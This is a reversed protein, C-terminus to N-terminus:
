MSYLGEQVLLWETLWSVGRRKHFRTWLLGDTAGLRLSGVERLDMWSDEYRTTEESCTDWGFYQM